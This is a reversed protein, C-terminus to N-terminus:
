GPIDLGIGDIDGLLGFDIGELGAFDPLYPGIGTAGTGNAIAGGSTTDQNVVPAFGLGAGDFSLNGNEGGGTAGNGNSTCSGMASAAGMGEGLRTFTRASKLM